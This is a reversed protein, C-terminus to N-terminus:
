YGEKFNIKSFNLVALTAMLDMRLFRNKGFSNKLQTKQTRWIAELSALISGLFAFL